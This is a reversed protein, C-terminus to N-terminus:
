FGGEDLVKVYARAEAIDAFLEHRCCMAGTFRERPNVSLLGTIFELEVDDMVGAYRGVLGDEPDHPPLEDFNVGANNPNVSFAMM